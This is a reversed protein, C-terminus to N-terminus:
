KIDDWDRVVQFVDDVNVAGFVHPHRRILKTVIAQLVDALRFRGEEAAIQVLMTAVLSLAGLGEAVPAGDAAGDAAADIADRLEACEGLLDQRLSELTQERARPCGEPARLHAVIEQLDTFSGRALPPVYLSTLHDLDD